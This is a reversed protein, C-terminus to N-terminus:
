SNNLMKYNSNKKGILFIKKYQPYCPTYLFICESIKELFFGRWLNPSYVELIPNLSIHFIKHNNKLFVMIHSSLGVIVSADSNILNTKSSNKILGNISNKLNLHKKSGLTYPHLQINYKSFSFNTIEILKQFNYLIEARDIENYILPLFITKKTIKTKLPYRISPRVLIKKKWGLYKCFFTKQFNSFLILKDIKIQDKLFNTPVPWPFAHLFCVIKSKINTKKFFNIISKQIYQGEYMIYIIKKKKNFINKFNVEVNDSIIRELSVNLFFLIPNFLVYKLNKKLLKLLFFFSFKKKAIHLIFINNNISKPIKKGQFIVIWLFNKLSSSNLNLINCNFKGLSDFCEENGYTIIIKNYKVIENTNFYFDIDSYFGIYFIDKILFYFNLFLNKNKKLLFNTTFGLFGKKCPHMYLNENIIKKKRLIKFYNKYEYLFKKQMNQFM